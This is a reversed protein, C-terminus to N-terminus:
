LAYNLGTKKFAEMLHAQVETENRLDTGPGDTEQSFTVPRTLVPQRRTAITFGAPSNLTTAAWDPLRELERILMRPGVVTITDDFCITNAGHEAAKLFDNKALEYSHWGDIYALDIKDPWQVHRSDGEILTVFGFLGLASLSNKFTDRVPEPRWKPNPLQWNDICFLHGSGNEQLARAMYCAGYGMFTGVEVVVKPKLLKIFSYLMLPHQYQWDKFMGEVREFFEGTNM